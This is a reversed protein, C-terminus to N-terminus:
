RAFVFKLTLSLSSVVYLSGMAGLGLAAFKEKKTMAKRFVIPAPLVLVAFDLVMNFASHSVYSNVFPQTEKSGFAYCNAHSITWDWYAKIPFCPFWAMFCSIAGWILCCALLTYIATRM